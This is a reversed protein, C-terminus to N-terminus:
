KTGSNLFAISEETNNEIYSSQWITRLLEWLKGTYDRANELYPHCEHIANMDDM